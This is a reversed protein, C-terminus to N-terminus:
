GRGPHGLGDHGQGHGLARGIGRGAGRTAGRRGRESARDEQVQPATPRGGRIGDRRREAGAAAADRLLEPREVARAEDGPRGDAVPDAPRAVQVVDRGLRLVQERRVVVAEGGPEEGRDELDAAVVEDLVHERGPAALRLRAQALLEVRRERGARRELGAHALECPELVLQAIERLCAHVVADDAQELVVARDEIDGLRVGTGAVGLQLQEAAHEARVHGALAM